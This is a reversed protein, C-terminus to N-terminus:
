FINENEVYLAKKATDPGKKNSNTSNFKLDKFFNISSLEFFAVQNRKTKNKLFIQVKNMLNEVKTKFFFTNNKNIHVMHLQTLKHAGGACLSSTVQDRLVTTLGSFM